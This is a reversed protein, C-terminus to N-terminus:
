QAERKVERRLEWRGCTHGAATCLPDEVDFAICCRHVEPPLGASYAKPYEAHWHECNSCDHHLLFGTTV